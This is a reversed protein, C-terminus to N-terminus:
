LPMLYYVVPTHTVRLGFQQLMCIQSRLQPYVKLPGATATNGLTITGGACLPPMLCAAVRSIHDRQLPFLQQSEQRQLQPPLVARIRPEMVLNVM